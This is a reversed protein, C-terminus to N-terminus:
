TALEHARKITHGAHNNAQAALSAGLADLQFM